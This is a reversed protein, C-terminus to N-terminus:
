EILRIRGFDPVPVLSDQHMAPFYVLFAEGLLMEIPLVGEGATEPLTHAVWPDPKGWSRGDRSAASNDGLVWLQGQGLTVTTIPHTGLPPPNNRIRYQAHHPHYHLDRDV